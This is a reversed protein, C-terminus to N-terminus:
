VFLEYSLVPAKKYDCLTVNFYEMDCLAQLADDVNKPPVPADIRLTPSLQIPQQMQTLLTDVHKEYIHADGLSITLSGPLLSTVHALLMTLLSYSAINFPLGLAVDASRQYMHCSLVRDHVDFQCLVHCPPLAMKPLDPPNWSSMIIRRSNPENILLKIVERLQDVGERQDCQGFQRWQFGYIPGLDPGASANSDWIHVHQNQLVRVDTQGRIFWMLETFVLKLSMHKSTLLPLCNRTLDFCMHTPPSFVSRTDHGHTDTRRRGNDIIYCVLDRYPQENNM